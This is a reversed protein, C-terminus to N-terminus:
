RKSALTMRAFLIALVLFAAAIIHFPNTLM